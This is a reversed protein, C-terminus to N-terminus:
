ADKHIWFLARYTQIIIIFYSSQPALLKIFMMLDWFIFILHISFNNLVVVALTDNFMNNNM